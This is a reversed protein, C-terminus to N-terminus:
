LNQEARIKYSMSRAVVIVVERLVSMPSTQVDGVRVGKGQVAGIAKWKSSPLKGSSM